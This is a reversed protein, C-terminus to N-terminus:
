RDFPRLLPRERYREFHRERAAVEGDDQGTLFSTACGGDPFYPTPGCANKNPGWSGAQSNHATAAVAPAEAALLPLILAAAAAVTKMISMPEPERDNHPAM